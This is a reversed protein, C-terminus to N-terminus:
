WKNKSKRIQTDATQSAVTACQRPTNQLSKRVSTAYSTSPRVIESLVQKKAEKFTRNYKTKVAIIKKEILYHVCIRTRASLILIEVIQVNQNIQDHIALTNLKGVTIAYPSQLKVTNVSMAMSKVYSVDAHHLTIPSFAKMLAM